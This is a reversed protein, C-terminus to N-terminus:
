FYFQSDQRYMISKVIIKDKEFDYCCMLLFQNNYRVFSNPGNNSCMKNYSFPSFIISLDPSTNKYIAQLFRIPDEREHQRMFMKCRQVSRKIAHKTYIVPLSKDTIKSFLISNM